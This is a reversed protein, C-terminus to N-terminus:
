GGDCMGLNVTSTGGCGKPGSEMFKVRWVGDKTDGTDSNLGPLMAEIRRILDRAFSKRRMGDMREDQFLLAYSDV